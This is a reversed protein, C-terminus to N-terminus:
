TRRMLDSIKVEKSNKQQVAERVVSPKRFSSLGVFSNDHRKLAFLEKFLNFIEKV